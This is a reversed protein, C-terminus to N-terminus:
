EKVRQKSTPVNFEVVKSIAKTGQVVSVCIRANVNKLSSDAKLMATYRIGAGPMLREVHMGPSIFIHRNGTTELVTPQIDLIPKQGTNYVEFIVKCLEGRNITGDQNADVIRANRINRSSQGAASASNNNM